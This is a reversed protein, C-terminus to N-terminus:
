SAQHPRQLYAVLQGTDNTVIQVLSYGDGGLEDLKERDNGAGVHISPDGATGVGIPM